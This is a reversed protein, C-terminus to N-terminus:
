RWENAYKDESLHVLHPMQLVLNRRPIFDDRHRNHIHDTTAIQGM